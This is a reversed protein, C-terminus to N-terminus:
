CRPQSFTFQFLVRVSNLAARWSLYTLSHRFMSFAVILHANILSPETSQISVSGHGTGLAHGHTLATATHPRTTLPAPQSKGERVIATLPARRAPHASLSRRGGFPAPGARLWRGRRGWVGTLASPLGAGGHGSSGSWRPLVPRLLAASYIVPPSTQSAPTGMAPLQLWAPSAPQRHRTVGPTPYFPCPSM